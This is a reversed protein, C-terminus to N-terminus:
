KEFRVGPQEKRPFRRVTVGHFLNRCTRQGEIRGIKGRQLSHQYILNSFRNLSSDFRLTHPYDNFRSMQAHHHASNLLLM